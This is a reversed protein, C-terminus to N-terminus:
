QAAQYDEIALIFTQEIDAGRAECNDLCPTAVAIVGATTRAYMSRLATMLKVHRSRAIPENEVFYTYQTLWLRGSRDALIDRSAPILQGNSDELSIIETSNVSFTQPDFLYSGHTVLERGQTQELYLNSYFEVPFRGGTQIAFRHELAAGPYQPRWYDDPSVLHSGSSSMRLDLCPMDAPYDDFRPLAYTVVPLVIAAVTAISLGMYNIAQIRTRSDSPQSGAQENDSYPVLRLVLAFVLLDFAFVWWGLSLHGGMWDLADKLGPHLYALVILLIRLWNFVMSLLGAIALILLRTRLSDGRLVGALLGVALAMGLFHAGSCDEAIFVKGTPLTLYPGDLAAPIGLIRTFVGVMASTILQLTPKLYDWVPIAFYL